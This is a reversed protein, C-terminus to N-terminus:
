GNNNYQKTKNPDLIIDAIKIARYDADDFCECCNDCLKLPDLDCYRCQQCNDCIKGEDLQCLKAKM